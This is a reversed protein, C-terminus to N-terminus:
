QPTKRDAALLCSATVAHAFLARVRFVNEAARQLIATVRWQCAKETVPAAVSARHIVAKVRDAHGDRGLKKLVTEIAAIVQDCRAGLELKGTQFGSVLPTQAGRAPFFRALHPHGRRNIEGGRVLFRERDYLKPM